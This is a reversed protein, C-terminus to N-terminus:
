KNIKRLLGRIEKFKNINIFNNNNVKKFCCYVHM